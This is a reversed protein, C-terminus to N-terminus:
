PQVYPDPSARLDQQPPESARPEAAAAAASALCSLGVLAAAAAIWPIRKPRPTALVCVSLLRPDGGYHQEIERRLLAHARRLRNRVTSSPIGLRRAIEVSRLGGEHRLLVTSRYPESLARMASALRRSLEAREVLDGTSPLAERRAAGHERRTRRSETRRMQRALNRLVAAVWAHVSGTPTTGKRSALWADQVLDDARQEGALRRALRRAWSSELSREKRDPGM